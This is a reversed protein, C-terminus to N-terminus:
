GYLVDKRIANFHLNDKIHVEQDLKIQESKQGQVLFLSYEDVNFDAKELIQKGTLLDEKLLIKRKNVLIAKEKKAASDDLKKADENEEGKNHHEIM